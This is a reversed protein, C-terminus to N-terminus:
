LLLLLLLRWRWLMPSLRWRCPWATSVEQWGMGRGIGRSWGRRGETIWRRIAPIKL